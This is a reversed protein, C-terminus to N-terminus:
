AAAFATEFENWCAHWWRWLSYGGRSIAKYHLLGVVITTGFYLFRQAGMTFAKGIPSRNKRLIILQEVQFRVHMLEDRLIQDCITRLLVSQTAERLAAYYVKAIIEATVLVAISMELGGLLHRLKRFVIDTFTTHVLAINNLKLFRGLDRAHRQEEAIFLRIAALYSADGTQEAYTKSYKYLHQGESSEGAQFGRLSTAIAAIEDPTLDGGIQWPVDILSRANQEYYLRWEDSTM